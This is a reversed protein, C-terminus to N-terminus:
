GADCQAIAAPLQMKGSIWVAQEHKLASANSHRWTLEQVGRNCTPIRPTTLFDVASRMM